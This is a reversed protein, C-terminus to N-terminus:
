KDPPPTTAKRRGRKFIRGLTAKVKGSRNGAHKKPAAERDQAAVATETMIREATETHETSAPRSIHQKDSTPSEQRTAGEEAANQALISAIDHYKSLESIGQSQDGRELCHQTVLNLHDRYM